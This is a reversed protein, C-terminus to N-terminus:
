EEDDLMYEILIEGAERVLRAMGSAVEDGAVRDYLDIEPFEIVSDDRVARATFRPKETHTIYWSGSEDGEGIIWKDMM